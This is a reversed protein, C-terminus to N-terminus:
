SLGNFSIGVRNEKMGIGDAPDTHCNDIESVAIASWPDFIHWFKLNQEGSAKGSGDVM